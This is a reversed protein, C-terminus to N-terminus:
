PRRHTAWISRASIRTALTNTSSAPQGLFERKTRVQLFPSPSGDLFLVIPRWGRAAVRVVTPCTDLLPADRPTDQLRGPPV